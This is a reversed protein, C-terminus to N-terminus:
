QERVLVHMVQDRRVASYWNRVMAIVGGIVLCTFGAPAVDDATTATTVLLAIGLTGFLVSLVALFRGQRPRVLTARFATQNMLEYGRSILDAVAYDLEAGSGVVVTRGRM